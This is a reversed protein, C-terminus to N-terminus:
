LRSQRLQARQHSVGVATVRHDVVRTFGDADDLQHIQQAGAFRIARRHRRDHASASSSM